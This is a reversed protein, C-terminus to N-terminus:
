KLVVIKKQGVHRGDESFRYFYVGSPLRQGTDGRGDWLERHEGAPLRRDILTRQHRGAVDLIVLRVVAESALALPITTTPNMPNPVCDGLWSRAPTPAVLTVGATACAVERAGILGCITPANESACPSEDSLFREAGPCFLPNESIAGPGPVVGFYEGGENNWVDNCGTVPVAGEQALIGVGVRGNVVINNRIEPTSTVSEVAIGSALPGQNDDLTNSVITADNVVYIAGGPSGTAINDYIVNGSIHPEAGNRCAIAGGQMALNGYIVNNHISPSAMFCEIGGGYGDPRYGGTIFFGDILTTEDENNQAVVASLLGGADIVTPYALPDRELFDISYGGLLCVGDRLTVHEYYTGEAVAVTDGRGAANIGMAISSHDDPVRIFDFTCTAPESGILGCGGSNEPACPSVAPITYDEMSPDCFMPDASFSYPGMNVNLWDHPVNDWVDNCTTTTFINGDAELGSGTNSAVICRAIVAHSGPNLWVGGGNTAQNDVITANSVTVTPGSFIAIAGGLVGTNDVFLCSDVIASSDQVLLGGGHYSAQNGVFQCRVVILNTSENAFIAGGSVNAIGSEFRCRRVTLGQCHWIAMAAGVETSRNGWFVNDEFMASSQRLYISGGRQGRSDVFRNNSLTPSGGVIHVQGGEATSGGSITFGDVVTMSGVAVASSIIRSTSTLSTLNIQPDRTTFTPDYGGLIAVGDVLTFSDTYGGGRVAVTDGAVAVTLATSILPYDDPVRLFAGGETAGVPNVISGFTLVISITTAVQM